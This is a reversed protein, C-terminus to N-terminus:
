QRLMTQIIPLALWKKSHEAYTGTLMEEPTVWVAEGESSSVLEVDDPIKGLFTSCLYGGVDMECLLEEVIEADVGVEERCERRANKRPTEGPEAKGGPLEYAGGHKKSRIVAIRGRRILVMCASARM